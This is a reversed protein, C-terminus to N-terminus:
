FFLKMIDRGTVLLILGMLFIFGITHAWGEVAAPIKRRFIGELAVFFARGGDLAPIPLINMAALSLSIMGSVQILYSLGESASQGVVKAIGVPGSVDLTVGEGKVLGVVLQWLAMFINMLGIIAAKFGEIFASYWPYTVLGVDRLYIGLRPTDEGEQVETHVVLEKVEGQRLVTVTIPTTDHSQVAEVVDAANSPVFADIQSIRDGPLFGAKDAVGGDMVAEIVVMPAGELRGGPPVGESVDTPLGIMFGFGFLVAALLINMTVGAVLVILRQWVPRAAFSDADLAGDGNEGKIKVFGGIPLWNLSYLIGPFEAQREGGGVTNQMANRKGGRVFVIKKTKPDRYWGCARPPFGVGFEFVRMKFLRATVFHGLEHIVVLVTLVVLFLVITSM